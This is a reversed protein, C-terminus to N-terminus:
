YLVTHRASVRLMRSDERESQLPSIVILATSLVSCYLPNRCGESCM